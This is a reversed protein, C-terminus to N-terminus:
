FRHNAPLRYLGAQVQRRGDVRQSQGRARGIKKQTELKKLNNDKEKDRGSGMAAAQLQQFERQDKTKKFDQLHRDVSKRLNAIQDPELPSTGLAAVYDRLKEIAGDLDGAEARQQALRQASIGEKTMKDLEVLNFAYYQQFSSGDGTKTGIQPLDSAM